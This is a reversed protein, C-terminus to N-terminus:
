HIMQVQKGKGDCQLCKDGDLFKKRVLRYKITKGFYVEDYSVHLTINKDIGNKKKEMPNGFMGGFMGGSNAPAAALDAM